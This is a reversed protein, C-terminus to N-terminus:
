PWLIEASNKPGNEFKVSIKHVYTNTVNPGNDFKASIKHGYTIIMNPGNNFKASIKYGYLHLYFASTYGHAITIINNPGNDSKTSIKNTILLPWIQGMWDLM